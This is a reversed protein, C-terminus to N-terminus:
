LFGILLRARMPALLDEERQFFEILRDIQEDISRNSCVRLYLEDSSESFDYYVNVKREIAAGPGFYGILAAEM